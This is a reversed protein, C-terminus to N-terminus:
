SDLISILKEYKRESIMYKIFLSLSGNALAFKKRQILEGILSFYMLPLLREKERENNSFYDGNLFCVKETCRYLYMSEYKVNMDDDM